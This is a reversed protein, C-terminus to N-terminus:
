IDRLKELRATLETKPLRVSKGNNSELKELTETYEEKTMLRQAFLSDIIGLTGIVQVRENKAAKRLAGDGTLLCINRHKAIALAVRDYVSLRLYKSGYMEALEFEEITMEVPILGKRILQWGLDPPFLLEDEISDHHMIYSYSLRFPLDLKDIVSFDIWVSTDSSIYEM